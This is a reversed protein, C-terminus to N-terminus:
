CDASYRGSLLSSCNIASLVTPAQRKNQQELISKGCIVVGTLVMGLIGCATKKKEKSTM